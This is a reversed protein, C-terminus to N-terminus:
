IRTKVKQIFTRLTGDAQSGWIYVITTMPRTVPLAFAPVAVTTTDHLVVDATYQGSPMSATAHASNVMNGFVVSGDLRFDVAPAAAIHRVAIRGLRGTNATVFNDFLNVAPAGSANLNATLTHNTRSTLLADDMRLLPTSSGPRAGDSFIALDYESPTLRVQRLQGPKLNNVIRVSGAYVDVVDAGKGLPIAHFVSLIAPPQKPAASVPAMLLSLGFPVALVAVVARRISTKKM